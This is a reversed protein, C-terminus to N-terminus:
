NNLFVELYATLKLNDTTFNHKDKDFDGTNIAHNWEPGVSIGAGGPLWKTWSAKFKILNEGLDFGDNNDLDRLSLLTEFGLIGIRGLTYAVSVLGYGGLEVDGDVISGDHATYAFGDDEAPKLLSFNAYFMFKLVDTAKWMMRVDAAFSDFDGINTSGKNDRNLVYTLGVTAAIDDDLLRPTCYLAFLNNGRSKTKYIAEVAGFGEIAYGLEADVGADWRVKNDKSGWSTTYYALDDSYGRMSLGAQGFWGVGNWFDNQAFRMRVTARGGICTPDSGFFQHGSMNLNVYPAWQFIYDGKEFGLEKDGTVQMILSPFLGTRKVEYEENDIVTVESLRIDLQEDGNHFWHHDDTQGAYIAFRAGGPGAWHPAWWACYEWFNLSETGVGATGKDYASYDTTGTFMPYIKIVIGSYDSFMNFLMDEGHSKDAMKFLDTESGHEKLRSNVLAVPMKFGMELRFTGQEAALVSGAAAAAAALWAALRKNKM